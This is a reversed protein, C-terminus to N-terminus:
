DCLLSPFLDSYNNACMASRKKNNNSLKAVIKRTSYFWEIEKVTTLVGFILGFM